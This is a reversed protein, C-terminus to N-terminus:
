YNIVKIGPVGYYESFDANADPVRGLRLYLNARNLRAKGRKPSLSIAISYERLADEYKGLSEYAWGLNAHPNPDNQNLSIAQLYNAIASEVLSDAKEL